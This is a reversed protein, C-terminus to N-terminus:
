LLPPLERAWTVETRATTFGLSAYLAPAGSGNDSDVQLAATRCDDVAAVRLAQVITAKALERGRAAPLM